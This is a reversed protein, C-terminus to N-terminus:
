NAGVVTASPPQTIAQQLKLEGIRQDLADILRQTMQAQPTFQKPDNALQVEVDSLHKVLLNLRASEEATQIAMQGIQATYADLQGGGATRALEEQRKVLDIRARALSERTKALESESVRGAAVLKEANQLASDNGKLIAQLEQTVTDGALKKAAQERLQSIQDETAKRKAEMVALSMKREQVDNELRRKTEKLLSIDSDAELPIRVKSGPEAGMLRILQEQAAARQRETDAIMASLQALRGQYGAQLSSRLNNVVARIFEEAAPKVNDPLRVGLRFTVSELGGRGPPTSQPGSAMNADVTGFGGNFGRVPGRRGFGSPSSGRRISDTLPQLIMAPFIQRMADDDVALQERAAKAEVASSEVLNLVADFSLPIIEPDATITVICSAYQTNSLPAPAKATNNPEAAWAGGILSLVLIVSVTNRKSTAM